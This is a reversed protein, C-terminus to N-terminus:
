FHIQRNGFTFHECIMPGDPDPLCRVRSGSVTEVGTVLPRMTMFPVDRAWAPVSEGSNSFRLM